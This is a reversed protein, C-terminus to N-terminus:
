LEEEEYVGPQGNHAIGVYRTSYEAADPVQIPRGVYRVDDGQSTQESDTVANVVSNHAREPGAEEIVVLVAYVPM